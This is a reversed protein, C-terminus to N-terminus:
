FKFNKWKVNSYVNKNRRFIITAQYIISHVSISNQLRVCRNRWRFKILFNFFLHFFSFFTSFWMKSHKRHWQTIYFLNDFRRRWMRSCWGETEQKLHKAQWLVNWFLAFTFFCQISLCEFISEGCIISVARFDRPSGCEIRSHFFNKFDNENMRCTQAWNFQNWRWFFVCCQILINWFFFGGALDGHFGWFYQMGDFILEVQM